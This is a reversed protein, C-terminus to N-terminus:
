FPVYMEPGIWEQIEPDEILNQLEVIKEEIGVLKHALGEQEIERACTEAHQASRLNSQALTKLSRLHSGLNKVAQDREINSQQPQNSM